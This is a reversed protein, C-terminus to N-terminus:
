AFVEIESRYMAADDDEGHVLGHCYFLALIGIAGEWMSLVARPLLLVNFSTACMARVGNLISRAARLARDRAICVEAGM